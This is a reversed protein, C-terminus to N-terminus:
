HNRNFLPWLLVWPLWKSWILCAEPTFQHATGYIFLLVLLKPGKVPGNLTPLSRAPNPMALLVCVIGYYM